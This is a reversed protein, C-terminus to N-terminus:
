NKIDFDTQTMEDKYLQESSNFPNDNRSSITNNVFTGTENPSENQSLGLVENIRQSVHPTPQTYNGIDSSTINNNNTISNENSSEHNQNSVNNNEPPLQLNQNPQSNQPQSHLQPPISNTNLTHVYIDFNSQSYPGYGTMMIVEGSSLITPVQINIKPFYTEKSILESIQSSPSIFRDNQTFSSNIRQIFPLESSCNSLNYGLNTQISPSVPRSSFHHRNRSSYHFNNRNQQSEAFLSSSLNESTNHRRIPFSSNTQIMENNSNNNLQHNSNSNDINQTNIELRNHIEQTTEPKKKINDNQENLEKFLDARKYGLLMQPYLYPNVVLHSFQMSLDSLLRGCRDMFPIMQTATFLIERDAENLYGKDFIKKKKKRLELIKDIDKVLNNLHERSKELYYISDISREQPEVNSDCARGPYPSSFVSSPPQLTYVKLNRIRPSSFDIWEDWRPAWENYHVYAKTGRVQIVQAELWQEITDKVDVWEGVEYTSKLFDFTEMNAGRSNNDKKFSTKCKQFNNISILNQYLTEFCESMDFHPLIVHARRRTARLPAQIVPILEDGLLENNMNYFNNNNNSNNAGEQPPNADELARAVLHVVCDTTIKLNVITDNDNILKGQYILRQAEVPIKYLTSIQQKLALITATNIISVSFSNDMTQIKITIKEEKIPEKQNQSSDTTFTGKSNPIQNKKEM